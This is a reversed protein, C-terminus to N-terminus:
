KGYWGPARWSKGTADAMYRALAERQAGPLRLGRKSRRWLVDDATQAWEVRMLYGVEAATLEAGFRMGLDDLCAAGRLIAHARSGYAAGRCRRRPPGPRPCISITRPSASRPRPWGGTPPSRAAM